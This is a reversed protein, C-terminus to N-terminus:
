QLWTHWGDLRLIGYGHRAVPFSTIFIQTEVGHQDRLLIPRNRSWADWLAKRRGGTITFHFLGAQPGNDLVLETILHRDLADHATFIQPGDLVM